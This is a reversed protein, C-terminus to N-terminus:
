WASDFFAPQITNVVELGNVSKEILIANSKDFDAKFRPPKVACGSMIITIALISFLTKKIMKDEM